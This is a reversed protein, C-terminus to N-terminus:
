PQIATCLTRGEDLIVERESLRPQVKPVVFCSALSPLLLPSRGGPVTAPDDGSTIRKSYHEVLPM